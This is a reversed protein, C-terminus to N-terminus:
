VSESEDDPKAEEPRQETLWCGLTRLLAEPTECSVVEGRLSAAGPFTHIYKVVHKRFRVLGFREGHHELMAQLHRSVVRLREEYSVEEADRGSFIWPNGIAGRGILVAECGTAEKMARIDGVLRVDGNGLVPVHVAEEIEAIAQWDAEGSYGQARTRGHVAIASVGSDELAQAIQLYNRSGEDWGLRIKATVPLPLEDVLTRTMRAVRKPTRLLAAGRGGSTVRRAPCGLNIDIIDPERRLLKEAARLLMQANGSLLQVAVPREEEVFHLPDPKRPSRYIVENDAVCPLYSM